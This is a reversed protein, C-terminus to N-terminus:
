LIREFVSVMYDINFLERNKVIPHKVYDMYLDDNTDLEIIKEVTREDSGYRHWNVFAGENFDENIRANGWYIPVCSAMFPEYIKETTYGIYGNYQKTNEIALCFKFEKLANYKNISGDITGPEGVIMPANNFHSGLASVQKYSSLMNFMTSRRENGGRAVYGCFKHKNSVVVENKANLIADYSSTIGNHYYDYAYLLYLPVRFFRNDDVDFSTLAYDCVGIDFFPEGSFYVMKANQYRHQLNDTIVLDPDESTVVINYRQSLAYTFLNNTKNFHPWFGSFHVRIYKM